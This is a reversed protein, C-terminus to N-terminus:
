QLLGILRRRWVQSQSLEESGRGRGLFFVMSVQRKKLTQTGIGIQPALAFIEISFANLPVVLSIADAITIM